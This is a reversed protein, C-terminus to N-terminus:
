RWLRPLFQSRPSFSCRLHRDARERKDILKGPNMINRPDFKKKVAQM